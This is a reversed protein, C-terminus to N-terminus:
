LADSCWLNDLKSIRLSFVYLDYETKTVFPYFRLINYIKSIDRRIKMQILLLIVSVYLIVLICLLM